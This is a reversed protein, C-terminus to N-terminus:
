AVEYNDNCFWRRLNDRICWSSVKPKVIHFTQRLVPPGPDSSYMLPVYVTGVMMQYDFSMCVAIRDQEPLNSFYNNDFTDIVNKDRYNIIINELYNM